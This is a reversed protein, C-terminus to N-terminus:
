FNIEHNALRETAEEKADARTDAIGKLLLFVAVPDLIGWTILDKFWFVSGPLGTDVWHDFSFKVGSTAGLIMGYVSGLAWNFRYAFNQAAYDYWASVQKPEPRKAAGEPDLWWHSIAQWEINAQPPTLAFSPV